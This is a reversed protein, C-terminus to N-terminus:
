LLRKVLVERQFRSAALGSKSFSPYLYVVDYVAEHELSVVDNVSSISICVVEVCEMDQLNLLSCLWLNLKQPLMRM